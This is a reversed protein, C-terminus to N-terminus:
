GGFHPNFNTRMVSVYKERRYVLSEKTKEIRAQYEDIHETLKFCTRCIAANNSAKSNGHQGVGRLRCFQYKPGSNRFKSKFNSEVEM